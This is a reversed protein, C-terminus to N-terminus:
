FPLYQQRLVGWYELFPLPENKWVGQQRRLEANKASAVVPTRPNLKFGAGRVPRCEAPLPIITPTM